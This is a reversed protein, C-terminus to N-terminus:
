RVMQNNNITPSVMVVSRWNHFSTFWTKGGQVWLVGVILVGGIVNVEIHIVNVQCGIVNKVDSGIANVKEGSIVNVESDIVNVESDIVNAGRGIANLESSSMSVEGGIVNVESDIVNVESGIVNVEIGIVNVESDIAKGEESGHRSAGNWVDQPCPLVVNEFRGKQGIFFVIIGYFKHDWIRIRSWAQAESWYLVEGGGTGGVGPGGGRSALNVGENDM